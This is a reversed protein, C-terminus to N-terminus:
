KRREGDDDQSAGNVFRIISHFMGWTEELSKEVRDREATSRRLNEEAEERRAVNEELEERSRECEERSREREDASKELAILLSELESENQKSVEESLQNETIDEVELMAEVVREGEVLIPYISGQIWREGGNGVPGYRLPPTRVVKGDFVSQEIYPKLGAARIGEDEFVNHAEGNEGEHGWFDRWAANTVIPFGEGTFTQAVVPLQEIVSKLRLESSRRSEESLKLEEELQKRGNVDDVVGFSFRAEGDPDRMSSVTVRAWMLQGDKKILRKETQYQERDGDILEKHVEEHSVADHPHTAFWTFSEGKLEDAEYGLMFQLAPNTDEVKGEMDVLAFGFPWHVRSDRAIDRYEAKYPEVAGPSSPARYAGSTKKPPARSSGSLLAKRSSPVFQPIVGFTPVGSIEEAEEPSNWSDDLYEVLFVLGLGLFGGFVLAVFGDRVPNPSVPSGSSDASGWPRATIGGAETGVESIQESFAAGFASVIREAREPDTDYYSLEIFQTEPVPEVSLGGLLSDADESLGEAEVVDEAVLRSNAATSMTQTLQQLAITDGPTESIGSDQGVLMRLSSEYVPVQSISYGVAAGGFIVAMLVIIWFWRWVVRFLDSLSLVYEGESPRGATDHRDYGDNM